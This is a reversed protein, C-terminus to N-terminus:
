LLGEKKMQKVVARGIERVLGEINSPKTTKSQGAALTSERLRRIAEDKSMVVTAVRRDEHTM